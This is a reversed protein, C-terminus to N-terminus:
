APEFFRNVYGRAAKFTPFFRETDTEVMWSSLRPYNRDPGMVTLLFPEGPGNKVRVTAEYRGPGKRHLKVM